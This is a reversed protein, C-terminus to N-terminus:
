RTPQTLPNEKQWGGDGFGHGVPLTAPAFLAAAQLYVSAGSRMSFEFMKGSIERVVEGENVKNAETFTELTKVSTLSPL